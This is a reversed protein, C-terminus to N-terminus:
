NTPTICEAQGLTIRKIKPADLPAPAELSGNPTKSRLILLFAQDPCCVVASIEGRPPPYAYISMTKHYTNEGYAAQGQRLRRQHQGLPEGNCAYFNSCLAILAFVVLFLCFAWLHGHFVLFSTKLFTYRRTGNYSKRYSTPLPQTLKGPVKFLRCPTCLM